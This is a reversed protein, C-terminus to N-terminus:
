PKYLSQMEFTDWGTGDRRTVTGAGGSAAVPDPNNAQRAADSVIRYGSTVISGNWGSERKTKLTAGFQLHEEDRTSPAFATAALNFTNTGDTVVGSWIGSGTADHLFTRNKVTSDNTWWGLLASGELAPTFACGLKLKATDQGTHEISTAGFVARHIGKPEIDYLIGTVTTAPGAVAPFLNTAASATANAYSMPQGQSDQHNFSLSGWVGSKGKGGVYASLQSGNYDDSDGYLDFDQSNGTLRVSGETMEPARETMVVTTGISNGPFLASYPGYLVDVREIAEPTVMNWRPADFRGLFNSILYDDVYVLARSPQLTGFDRGGILANRDGIYRKRITTNPVYRLADEPNILNQERLEEATKSETSSPIDAALPARVGVGTVAVPALQVDTGVGVAYVNASFAAVLAAMIPGMNNHKMRSEANSRSRPTLDYAIGHFTFIHCLAAPNREHPIEHPM